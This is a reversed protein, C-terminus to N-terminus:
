GGGDGSRSRASRALSPCVWACNARSVTCCYSCPRPLDDPGAAVSSRTISASGSATTRARPSCLVPQPRLGERRAAPSSAEKQSLSLWLITRNAICAGSARFHAGAPHDLHRYHPGDDPASLTRETATVSCGSPLTKSCIQQLHLLPRDAPEIRSQPQRRDSPLAESRIHIPKRGLRRTGGPSPASSPARCSARAAPTTTSFFVASSKAPRMFAPFPTAPPMKSRPAPRSRSAASLSPSAPR